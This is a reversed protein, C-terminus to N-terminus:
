PAVMLTVRLTVKLAARLTVRITVRLKMRLTVRLAGQTQKCILFQVFDNKRQGPRRDGCPCYKMDYEM